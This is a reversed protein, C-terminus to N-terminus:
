LYVIVEEEMDKGSIVMKGLQLHVGHFVSEKANPFNIWKRADEYKSIRQYSPM